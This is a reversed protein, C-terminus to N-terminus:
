IPLDEDDEDEPREKYTVEIERTPRWARLHSMVHEETLVKFNYYAPGGLPPLEIQEPQAPAHLKCTRDPYEAIGESEELAPITCKLIGPIYEEFYGYIDSHGMLSIKGWCPFVSKPAHTVIPM